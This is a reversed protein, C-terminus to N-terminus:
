EINMIALTYFVVIVVAVCVLVLIMLVFGTIFEEPHELPALMAVAQQRKKDLLDIEIFQHSYAHFM